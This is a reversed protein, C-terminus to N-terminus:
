TLSKFVNVMEDQTSMTSNTSSEKGAEEQDQQQQRYAVDQTRAPRPQPQLRHPGPSEPPIMLVPSNTHQRQTCAQKKLALSELLHQIDRENQPTYAQKKLALSELLHQIDREDQRIEAEQTTPPRFAPSLYDKCTTPKEKYAEQLRPQFELDQIYTAQHKITQESDQLKKVTAIQARLNSGPTTLADVVPLELHRDINDSNFHM